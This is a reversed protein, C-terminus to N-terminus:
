DYFFGSYNEVPGFGRAGADNNFVGVMPVIDKETSVTSVAGSPNYNERTPSQDNIYVYLADMPYQRTPSLYPAFSGQHGEDLFSDRNDGIYQRENSVIDEPEKKISKAPKCSRIIKEFLNIIKNDVGVGFGLEKAEAIADEPDMGMYKCKFLATLFGTRDKGAQCHVFTPGGDLLLNKLDHQLLKIIDSRYTDLNIPLVVHNIGLMKCARNIKKAAEADLSVIKKINFDKKLRLVDQPTPASGRFLKKPVIEIFKNIM